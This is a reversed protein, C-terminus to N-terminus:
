LAYLKCGPAHLRPLKPPSCYDQPLVSKMNKGDASQPPRGQITLKKM